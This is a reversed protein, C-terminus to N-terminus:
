LEAKSLIGYNLEYKRLIRTNLLNTLPNNLNSEDKKPLGADKWDRERDRTKAYIVSDDEGIFNDLSGMLSQKIEQVEEQPEEESGGVEGNKKSGNQSGSAASDPPTKQDIKPLELSSSSKSGLSSMTKTAKAAQAFTKPAM